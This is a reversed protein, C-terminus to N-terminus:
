EFRLIEDAVCMHTDKIWKDEHIKFLLFFTDFIDSESPLTNKKICVVCLM